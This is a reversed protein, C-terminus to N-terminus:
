NYKNIEQYLVEAFNAAGKINLHVKDNLDEITTLNEGKILFINKDGGKQRKAVIERVAKRFDDAPIQSTKSINAKTTLLTICYTKTNPHKERITQLVKSYRNTYEEVSVGQGNYDNFGVLITMMDIKAFDDRIMEAMVQSTKGGGVALNFLEYGLKEALQFAYTEPTTQQGTGHTISDGYAVYVRKDEEPLDILDFGNEVELGLFHIDTRLPLTIRYVVEEGPRTSTLELSIESNEKYKFSKNAEFKGNQFVSFVAAKQFGKAIKFKAIVKPSNTKFEIFIGSSSRAKLPNFLNSKTTGAYVKDSHRHIIMEDGETKIYNSGYIQINENNPAIHKGLSKSNEQASLQSLMGLILISTVISRIIKKYM